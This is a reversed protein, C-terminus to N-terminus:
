SLAKQFVTEGSRLMLAVTIAALGAPLPKL